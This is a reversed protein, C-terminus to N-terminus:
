GNDTTGDNVEENEPVEASEEVSPKKRKKKTEEKVIEEVSPKKGNCPLHADYEGPAFFNRGCKMCRHYYKTM